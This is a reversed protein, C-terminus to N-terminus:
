AAASITKPTSSRVPTSLPLAGTPPVITGAPSLVPRFYRRSGLRVANRRRLNRATWVAVRHLWPGLPQDALTDARRVLVLFAAQFADETDFPDPLLRRCVGYVLPGHRDVLEAFAAGDGHQVFRALLEGDPTRAAFLTAFWSVIWALFAIVAWLTAWLLLPIALILRFFVTLRTRQLDDNVVIRIPHQPSTAAATTEM